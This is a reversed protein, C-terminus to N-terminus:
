RLAASPEGTADDASECACGGFKTCTHDKPICSDGCPKSDPGCHKCCEEGGCGVCLALIASVLVTAFLRM